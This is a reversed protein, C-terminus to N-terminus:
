KSSKGTIYGITGSAMLTLISTAWKKDDASSNPDTIIAICLYMFIGASIIAFLAILVDKLYSVATAWEERKIKSKREEPTLRRTFTANELLKPDAIANSINFKAEM